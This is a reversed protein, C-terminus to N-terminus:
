YMNVMILIVRSMQLKFICQPRGSQLPALEAKMKRECDQRYKKQFMRLIVNNQSIKFETINM